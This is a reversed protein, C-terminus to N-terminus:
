AKSTYIIVVYTSRSVVLNKLKPFHLDLNRSLREYLVTKKLTSHALCCVNKGISKMQKDKKIM